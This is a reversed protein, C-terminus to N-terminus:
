HGLIKNLAKGLDNEASSSANFARWAVHQDPRVLLCGGDSIESARAWDGTHDEFDRRPGIIHTKIEFGLKKSLTKAAEVWAEGGIGTLITFRGKGTIDLTSHQKGAKDFVWIHPIRAGPWTTPAYHLDKDKEFSPEKQGDNAIASSYYRQNMEIGHCDFEYNKFAIAKRLAERQKEAEPTAETRADMNRKIKEHDMGGDMGLAQFIPGFESISQNARTVIQKAIPAREESFSELLKLTAQGKVVMALKWALNFADQISTNSGLGNSPPHRHAADGMIFVRDKQMHTAYMNNVTWTNASILDIELKPDGVLQRAVQTAMTAEIIPAPKSIDYGWIILWENWPRVMRVVGMGIGGVDAGPQMIWYLVSPRHAVYKSLDARFLINISGGLGMKGEFPLGLHEAVLSNGGDCGVLYKARVTFHKNTLRDNCTVTVGDKDQVHSIYECSMRSQAGRSCATKFLLPEMFTQPLDNMRTPSSMIHEARSLPHKGWSKMRGIEEGALSECFVNEGMLDQDAAHMYAEDEVNQGLDRLVEMTRQNTIHARPTNALWRYRNIIFTNIGYTALLAATASGAPGTGIVMVDTTIDAM